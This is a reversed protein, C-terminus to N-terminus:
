FHWISDPPHMFGKLEKTSLCRAGSSTASWEEGSGWVWKEKGRPTCISFWDHGELLDLYPVWPLWSYGWLSHCQALILLRHLLYGVFSPFM